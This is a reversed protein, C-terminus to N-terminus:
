SECTPTFTHDGVPGRGAARGGGRIGCQARVDGRHPRPLGVRCATGRESHQGARVRSRVDLGRGARGRHGCRLHGSWLVVIRVAHTPTGTWATGAGTSATDRGGCTGRPGPLQSGGSRETHGPGDADEHASERETGYILTGSGGSDHVQGAPIIIDGCLPRGRQGFRDTAQTDERIGTHVQRGALGQCGPREKRVRGAAREYCVVADSHLWGLPWKAIGDTLRKNNSIDRQRETTPDEALWVYRCELTGSRLRSSSPRATACPIPDARFALHKRM